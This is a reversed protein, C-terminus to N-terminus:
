QLEKTEPLGPLPLTRHKAISPTREVGWFHRRPGFRYYNPRHHASYPLVRGLSVQTGIGQSGM